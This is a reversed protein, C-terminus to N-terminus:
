CKGCHCLMKTIERRKVEEIIHTLEVHYELLPGPKGSFILDLLENHRTREFETGYMNVIIYDPEYFVTFEPYDM